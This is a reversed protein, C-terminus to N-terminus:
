DSKGLCLVSATIQRDFAITLTFMAVEGGHVVCM